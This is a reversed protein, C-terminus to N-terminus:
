HIVMWGRENWDLLFGNFHILVYISFQQCCEGYLTSIIVSDCAHESLFGFQGPFDSVVGRRELIEQAKSGRGGVRRSSGIGETTPTHINEPVM